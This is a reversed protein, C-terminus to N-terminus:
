RLCAYGKLFEYKILSTSVIAAAVPVTMSYEAADACVQAALANSPATCAETYTQPGFHMKEAPPRRVLTQVGADSQLSKRRLGAALARTDWSLCACDHRRQHERADERQM